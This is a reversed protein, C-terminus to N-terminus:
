VTTLLLSSDGSSGLGDAASRGNGAKGPLLRAENGTAPDGSFSSAALPPLPHGPAKDGTCRLMWLACHFCSEVRLLLGPEM